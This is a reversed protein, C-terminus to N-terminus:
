SAMSFFTQQGMKQKAELMTRAMTATHTGPRWRAAQDSTLFIQLLYLWTTPDDFGSRPSYSCYFHVIYLKEGLLRACKLCCSRQYHLEAVIFLSKRSKSSYSASKTEQVLCIEWVNLLHILYVNTVYMIWICTCPALWYIAAFSRCIWCSLMMYQKQSLASCDTCPDSISKIVNQVRFVQELTVNPMLQLPLMSKIKIDGSLRLFQIDRPSVLQTLVDTNQLIYAINRIIHSLVIAIHLHKRM